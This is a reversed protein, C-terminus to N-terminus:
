SVQEISLVRGTRTDLTIARPQAAPTKDLGAVVVGNSPYLMLCMTVSTQDGRLVQWSNASNPYTWSGIMLDNKDLRVPFRGTEEQDANKVVLYYEGDIRYGGQEKVELRYFKGDAQNYGCISKGFQNQEESSCSEWSGNRLDYFWYQSIYNHSADYYGARVAIKGSYIYYTALLASIHNTDGEVSFRTGEIAQLGSGDRNMMYLAATNRSKAPYPATFYYKDNAIVYRTNYLSMSSATDDINLIGSEALRDALFGNDANDNPNKVPPISDKYVASRTRRSNKAGQYDMMSADEPGKQMATGAAKTQVTGNEIWAGDANVQYGDVTTDADMYGQADFHYSEAVGDRNGDLWAWSNVIRSGDDNQWYWRGNEQGWQGAFATLAGATLLAAALSVALGTKRM